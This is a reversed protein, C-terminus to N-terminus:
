PVLLKRSRRGDNDYDTRAPLSSLDISCSVQVQKGAREEIWARGEPWNKNLLRDNM